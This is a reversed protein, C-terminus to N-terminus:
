KWRPGAVWGVLSKRVGETVPRVRHLLRSDFIVLTGLHKPAFFSNKGECFQLQGGKYESVDSLQLSFSLKRVIETNQLGEQTAREPSTGMDLSNGYVGHRELFDDRHWGYYEGPGYRTYQLNEGNIGDIDYCFNSKNIKDIFYWLYGTIWVNAPVWTNESNRIHVVPDETDIVKSKNLYPDYKQLDNNIIEVIEPSLQTYFWTSPHAM